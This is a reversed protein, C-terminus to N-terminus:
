WTYNFGRANVKGIKEGKQSNNLAVLRALQWQANKM